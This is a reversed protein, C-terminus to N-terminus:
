KWATIYITEIQLIIEDNNSYKKWYFEEVKKFYNKNEFNKKRDLYINTNGLYRIDNLLKFFDKYRLQITDTELLPMKFNNKKLLKELTKVSYCDMLRKYAGNYMELDALIMCNKLEHCSNFGPVSAIFLSNSNLSKNINNLLIDLNNTLHLYLNSIIIDFKGIKLDWLDHDYNYFNTIFSSHNPLTKAIDLVSYDITQFRSLIYKFIKNSTYGIELCNNLSLNIGELSDNLRNAVENFIFNEKDKSINNRQLIHFKKNILQNANM